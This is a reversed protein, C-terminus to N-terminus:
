PLFKFTAVQFPTLLQGMTSAFNSAIKGTMPNLNSPSNMGGGGVGALHSIVKVVGGECCAYTRAIKQMNVVLTIYLLVYITLPIIM